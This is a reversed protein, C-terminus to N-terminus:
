HRRIAITELEDATDKSAYRFAACTSASTPCSPCTARLLRQRLTLELVRHVCVRAHIKTANWMTFEDRYVCICLRFMLMRNRSPPPAPQSTPSQALEALRDSLLVLLDRLQAPELIASIVDDLISLQDTILDMYDREYEQVATLSAAMRGICRWVSV